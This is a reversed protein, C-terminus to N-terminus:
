RDSGTRIRVGVYASFGAAGFGFVEEYAQDLINELRATFGLHPTLRYEAAANWLTYGDVVIRGSAGNDARAGTQRLESFLRLKEHAEVGIRLSGLHRPRRLLPVGSRKDETDTFTYNGVVNIREHPVWTGSLEVGKARADDINEAMSTAPSFAILDSIRNDFFTADFRLRPRQWAGAVGFDYGTSEEPRVAPNGFFPFYLDNLSPARFGTGVSGHLRLGYGLRGTGTVRFTPHGGFQSHDEYRGGVAITVAESLEIRDHLYIGVVDIHEDYGSTGSITRSETRAGEQRYEVGGILLQRGPLSVRSEWDIERVYADLLSGRFFGADPNDSELDFQSNAATLSSEWRDGTWRLAAGAVVDRSTQEFNDDDSPGVGFTFGDIETFADLFRVFGDVALRETFQYGVRGDVTLNSNGDRETNGRDEAAASFGASDFYFVGASYDLRDTRGGVWGDVYGTSFSGGAVEIGASTPGAGSKTVVNIVGGIAESGYLSSQPGRVIEVREIQSAALNSFSFAGTTPSNVKVGNILVLTHNSNTGRVFSSAVKGPGGSRAVNVGPAWELVESLWRSGSLEIEDATIVTVTSGVDDVGEPARNATVTISESVTPRQAQPPGSTQPRPPSSTQAQPPNSKQKQPSIRTPENGNTVLSARAEVLSPAAVVLCCTFLLVRPKM